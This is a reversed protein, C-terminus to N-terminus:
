EKPKPPAKSSAPVIIRSTTASINSSTSGSKISIFYNMVGDCVANTYATKFQESKIKTYDTASTLFGNEMLVVPCASVRSLNFYHWSTGDTRNPKIGQNKVANSIYSTAKKTYPTFYGMFYGSVSSNSNGNFHVSLALDANSNQIANYRSKLSVTKDSTRTLKVNCGLSKLRKAISIAYALTYYKENYKTGAANYTGGETGGHGADIYVTIGKLSYGYKNQARQLTPPNLFSFVLEGKSNYYSDWGYFAGKTKLYLRLKYGKSSKVWKYKKFLKNKLFSIKGSVKKAYCFTIEVYSYTANTIAYNPSKTNAYKQSKLQLKFPAKFDVKFHVNTRNGSATTKSFKVTNRNKITGKYVKVESSKAYVRYGCNLLYYKKGSESDYLKSPKCYDVTGKPLYSNTPRSYDDITSGSFTEANRTVVKAVYKKKAKSTTKALKIVPTPNGSEEDFFSTNIIIKSANVTQTETEHQATIKVTASSHCILAEPIDLIGYYKTYTKGDYEGTTEPELKITAGLFEATVTCGVFANATVSFSSGSDLELENDSPTYSRIMPTAYTILFKKTNGKYKFTFHNKGRKLKTQYNFYGESDNPIENGSVTLKGENDTKGSFTFYEDYVVLSSETPYTFILSENKVTDDFKYNSLTSSLDKENKACGYFIGVSFSLCLM